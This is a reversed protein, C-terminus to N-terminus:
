DYAVGNLYRRIPDRLTEEVGKGGARGMTRLTQRYRRKRSRPDHGGAKRVGFLPLNLEPWKTLSERLYRDDGKRVSM